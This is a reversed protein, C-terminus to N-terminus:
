MLPCQLLTIHQHWDGGSSVLAALGCLVQLQKLTPNITWNMILVNHPDKIYKTVDPRRCVATSLNSNIDIHEGTIVILCLCGRSSHSRLKKLARKDWRNLQGNCLACFILSKSAARHETITVKRYSIFRKLRFLTKRSRRGIAKIHMPNDFINLPVRYVSKIYADPRVVGYLAPAVINLQRYWDASNASCILDCYKIEQINSTVITPDFYIVQVYKGVSTHLKAIPCKKVKFELMLRVIDGVYMQKGNKYFCGVLPTGHTEDHDM